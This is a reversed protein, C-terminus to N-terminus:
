NIEIPNAFDFLKRRVLDNSAEHAQDIDNYKGLCIRYWTGKEGLDVEVIKANWGDFILDTSFSEANKRKQFSAVQLAYYPSESDLDPAENLLEPAAKNEKIESVMIQEVKSEGEKSALTENKKPVETLKLDDSKIEPEEVVPAAPQAEMKSDSEPRGTEAGLLTGGEVVKVERSGEARYHHKFPKINETLELADGTFQDLVLRETEGMSEKKWDADYTSVDTGFSRVSRMYILSFMHGNLPMYNKPKVMCILMPNSVRCDDLQWNPNCGIWGFAILRDCYYGNIVVTDELFTLDEEVSPPKVVISGKKPPLYSVWYKVVETVANNEDTKVFESMRDSRYRSAGTLRRGDNVYAPKYSNPTHPLPATLGKLPALNFSLINNRITPMTPASTACSALLVLVPGLLGLLGRKAPHPKSQFLFHNRKDKKM